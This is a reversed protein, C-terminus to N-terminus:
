KKMATAPMHPKATKEWCNSEARPKWEVMEGTMKKAMLAANHQSIAYLSMRTEDIRVSRSSPAETAQMVASAKTMRKLCPMWPSLWCSLSPPTLRRPMPSATTTEMKERTPKSLAVASPPSALFALRVTGLATMALRMAVPAKMTKM